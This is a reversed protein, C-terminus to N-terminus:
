LFVWSKLGPYDKQDMLFKGNRVEYRGYQYTVGAYKHEACYKMAEEKSNAHPLAKPDYEKPYGQIYYGLREESFVGRRKARLINLRMLTDTQGGGTECKVIDYGTNILRVILQHIRDNDCLVNSEFLLKHPLLSLPATSLFDNLIIDDHGETDIKLFYLGTVGERDLFTTLRHMPVSVSCVIDQPSLGRKTLIREVSPHMAGISNCGKVWAPLDLRKITDPTLFHVAIEGDRDSIAANIKRCNKKSPLKDLYIAVPDVSLGVISDDAKQVLTNFDSTGIEMFDVFM